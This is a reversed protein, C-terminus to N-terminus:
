KARSNLAKIFLTMDLKDGTKINNKSFWGQNMELTYLINASASRVAIESHPYMQAIQLVVGEPSIFAIDLPIFTNKMWFSVLAPQSYVFFMGENQELKKVNMLGTAKENETIAIKALFEVQGIKQPYLTSIGSKARSIEGKDCGVFALVLFMALFNFIKM